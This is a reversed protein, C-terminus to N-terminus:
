KEHIYGILYYQFCWKCQAFIEINKIGTNDTHIEGKIFVQLHGNQSNTNIEHNCMNIIASLMKLLSNM